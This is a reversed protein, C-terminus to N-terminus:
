TKLGDNHRGDDRREKCYYPPTKFRRKADETKKNAIKALKIFSQYSSEGLMPANPQKTEKFGRM